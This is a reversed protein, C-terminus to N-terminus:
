IIEDLLFTIVFGDLASSVFFFDPGDNENTLM